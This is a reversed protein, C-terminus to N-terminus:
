NQNEDKLHQVENNHLGMKRKLENIENHKTELIVQICEEKQMKHDNNTCKKCTFKHNTKSYHLAYLSAYQFMQLTFLGSLRLM